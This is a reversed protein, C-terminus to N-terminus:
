LCRGPRPSSTIVIAMSVAWITLAEAAARPSGDPNLTAGTGAV